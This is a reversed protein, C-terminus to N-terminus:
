KGLGKRRKRKPLGKHKTSAYKELQEESMKTKTSLGKRKRELERGFFQQQAISKAPM